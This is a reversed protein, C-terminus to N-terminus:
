TTPDTDAMACLLSRCCTHELGILQRVIGSVIETVENWLDDPPDAQTGFMIISHGSSPIVFFLSIGIGHEAFREKADHAIQDFHAAARDRYNPEDNMSGLEDDDALEDTDMAAM